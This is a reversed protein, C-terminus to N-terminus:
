GDVVGDATEYRHVQGHRVAHVDVTVLQGNGCQGQTGAAANRRRVEGLRQGIQGDATRGVDHVDHRLHLEARGVARQESRKPGLANGLRRTVGPIQIGIRIPVLAQGNCYASLDGAGLLSSTGRPRTATLSGSAAFPTIVNCVRLRRRATLPATAPLAMAIPSRMPTPDAVAFASTRSSMPTLYMCPAPPPWIELKTLSANVSRANPKLGEFDLM